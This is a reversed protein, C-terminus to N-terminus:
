ELGAATLREILRQKSRHRERLDALRDHFDDDTDQRLALDRLDALLATAQVYAHGNRLGILSEVDKWVAAGRHALEDLRRRKAKAAAAEQRRAEAQRRAEEAREREVALRRAAARLEAATRRARPHATLDAAGPRCRRRLESRVHPDGDYVRLLLDAKEREGLGNIAAAVASRSPERAPPASGTQAAARVLDADICFFDAFAELAPTLPAIGPLPEIAEDPAEEIEVTMLWILYLVRLDGDRVADRLTGLNDLWGEGDDDWDTDLEYREVDVILHDGKIRFGASENDAFFRELEAADLSRTPLRMSFRRSGWNALYLFLDFYREMFRDPNGRFEGWEYHNVFSTATIRARTSVERLEQQETRSLPRDVARFEYYQYESM